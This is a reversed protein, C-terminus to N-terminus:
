KETTIKNVQKRKKNKKKAHEEDYEKIATPFDIEELKGKKALYCRKGLAFIYRDHDLSDSYVNEVEVNPLIENLRRVKEEKRCVKGLLHGNKKSHPSAICYDIKM